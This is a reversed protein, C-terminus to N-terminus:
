SNVTGESSKLPDGCGPIYLGLARILYLSRKRCRARVGEGAEITGGGGGGCVCEESNISWPCQVAQLEQFM